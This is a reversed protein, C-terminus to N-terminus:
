CILNAILVRSLETDKLTTFVKTEGDKRSVYLLSGLAYGWGYVKTIVSQESSFHNSEEALLLYESTITNLGWILAAINLSRKVNFVTAAGIWDGKLDLVGGVKTNERVARLGDEVFFDSDVFELLFTGAKRELVQMPYFNRSILKGDSFIEVYINHITKDPKFSLSSIEKIEWPQVEITKDLIVDKETRVLVRAKLVKSDSNIVCLPATYFDGEILLSNHDPIIGIVKSNLFKLYPYFHKPMRNYDLLGNAEWAIDSFETIVYGSIEPQMRITEIQYKLGLFQTLQAQYILDDLDHFNAIGQLAYAPQTQDFTLGMVTVPFESWKGLWTKPDSIGWIGFESVLKPLKKDIPEYFSEFKGSAFDKIQEKWEKNHYPYAKYFHYDDVDSIVHKNGICASNDVYVRTPDFKKAKFYFKRLWQREEAISLDIGWSENILSLMVFSPHNAHRVLLNEMLKELYNKSSDNLIRAYPLDIWILLGIEDAIELYLDDPIKMHFRLLNLGMEKAKLLESVLSNRDPLCYHTIPYFNQDLAGFIYVPEGNLLLKDDKTQFIRIGFSTEFRDIYGDTELTVVAKYLHPDDISWLHPNVITFEFCSSKEKSQYVKNHKSDYIELQFEHDKGDSFEVIGKVRGFLDLPYFRASSIYVPPVVLLEVEQVIGTANGYWDQKGMVIHPEARVDVDSVVLRLLDNGDFKVYNSLDVEFLDYGGEHDLLKQGNVFVSAQLDVGHFRLIAKREDMGKLEVLKREYVLQQCSANPYSEQSIDSQHPVSSIEVVKEGCILTWGDVLKNRM